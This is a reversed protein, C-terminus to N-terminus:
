EDNIYVIDSDKFKTHVVIEDCTIFETEVTDFVSCQMMQNCIIALRYLENTTINNIKNLSSIYQNVFTTTNVGALIIHLIKKEKGNKIIANQDYQFHTGRTLEKKGNFFTVEYFQNENNELINNNNCLVHRPKIQQMTILLFLNKFHELWTIQFLTVVTMKELDFLRIHTIQNNYIKQYTKVFLFEHLHLFSNIIRLALMVIIM